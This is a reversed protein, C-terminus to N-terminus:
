TTYQFDLKVFLGVSLPPKKAGKSLLQGKGGERSTIVMWSLTYCKNNGYMNKINTQKNATSAFL